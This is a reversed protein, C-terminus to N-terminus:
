SRQPAARLSQHHQARLHCQRVSGLMLDNLDTVRRHPAACLTGGEDNIRATLLERNQIKGQSIEFRVIKTIIPPDFSLTQTHTEPELIMGRNEGGDFYISLNRVMQAFAGRQKVEIMSVIYPQSYQVYVWEGVSKEASETAWERAEDADFVAGAGFKELNQFTSSAKLEWTKAEFHALDMYNSAHMLNSTSFKSEQVKIHDAKMVNFMSVGAISRKMKKWQKTSKGHMLNSDIAAGVISEAEQLRNECEWLIRGCGLAAELSSEDCEWAMKYMMKAESWRKGMGDHCLLAALNLCLDVRLAQGKLARSANGTGCLDLAARYEAEAIGGLQAATRDTRAQFKIRATAKGRTVATLVHVKEEFLDHYLRAFNRRLIPHRPDCKIARKYIKEASAVDMFVLKHITAINGLALAMSTSDNQQAASDHAKWFFNEALKVADTAAKVAETVASEKKGQEKKKPERTIVKKPPRSQADGRAEATPSSARLERERQERQFAADSISGHSGMGSEAESGADATLLELSMKAKNKADSYSWIVGPQNHSEHAHDSDLTDAGSRVTRQLVNGSRAQGPLMVAEDPSLPTGIKNVHNSSRVFESLLLLAMNSLAGSHRPDIALVKQLLGRPKEIDSTARYTARALHILCTTDQDGSIELAQEYLHSAHIPNDHVRELIVGLNCLAAANQPAYQLVTRYLKEADAFRNQRCLEACEELTDPVQADILDQRGTSAVQVIRNLLARADIGAEAEVPQMPPAPEPLDQQRQQEAIRAIRAQTRPRYDTSPRSATGSRIETNPRSM